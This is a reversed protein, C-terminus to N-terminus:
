MGGPWNTLLLAPTRFRQIPYPSVMKVLSAVGERQADNRFQSSPGLHNAVRDVIDFQTDSPEAYPHVGFLSYSIVVGLAFQDTRWDILPKQNLLQEPASYLPTGPGRMVWSQTLSQQALDRVLGFDVMVPTMGGDRFMINDPKIDRHVLRLGAVHAVAGILVSGMAVADNKSLPGSAIRDTLTGGALFEELSVVYDSGNHRYTDISRLKGISEHSCRIMAEMERATRECFAVRYVKLARVEGPATEIRFTEKFAGQGVTGLYSYHKEACFGTAVHELAFPM